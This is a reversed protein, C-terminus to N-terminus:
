LIRGDIVRTAIEFKTNSAIRRRTQENTFIETCYNKRPYHLYWLVLLDVVDNVVVDKCFYTKYKSKNTRCAVPHPLVVAVFSLLVGVHMCLTLYSAAQLRLDAAVVALPHQTFYKDQRGDM